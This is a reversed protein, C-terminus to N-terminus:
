NEEAESDQPRLGHPAISPPVTLPTVHVGPAAMTSM